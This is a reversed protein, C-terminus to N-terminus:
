ASRRMRVPLLSSAACFFFFAFGFAAVAAGWCWRGKSSSPALWVHRRESLRSCFPRPVFFSLFLACSVLCPWTAETFGRNCEYFTSKSMAVGFVRGKRTKRKKSGPVFFKNGDPASQGHCFFSSPPTTPHEPDKNLTLAQPASPPSPAPRKKSAPLRQPPEVVKRVVKVSQQTVHVHRKECLLSLTPNKQHSTHTTGLPATRVAKTKKAPQKGKKAWLSSPAKRGSRPRQSPKKRQFATQRASSGRLATPSSGRRSRQKRGSTATRRSLKSL